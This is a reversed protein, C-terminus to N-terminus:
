AARGLKEYNVTLYGNVPAGLADPRIKAVDQARVGIFRGEPLGMDKRYTFSIAPVGGIPHPLDVINEKAREDSLIGGLIGGILGGAGGGNKGKTWQGANTILNGAGTGLQSLQGLHNMYDDLKTSALDQRYNELAKMASGSRSLGMSAYKGNVADLGQNLLFKGGTSDWYNQLAQQSQGPGGIGLLNGLMNFGAVGGQAQPAYTGQIYDYAHNGSSNKQGGGGLFGM